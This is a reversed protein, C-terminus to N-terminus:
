FFACFKTSQIKVWVLKKPLEIKFKGCSQLYKSWKSVQCLKEFNGNEAIEITEPFHAM